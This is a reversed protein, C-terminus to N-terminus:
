GQSRTLQALAAFVASLWWKKRVMYLLALAIFFLFVPESSGVHYVTFWRPTIVIFPLVVLLPNLKPYLEKILIYLVYLFLLAFVLSVFIMARFYGMFSFLFIFLPYLPFHAAFHTAPLRLTNAKDILEPNYFSKAIVVYSPGDWNQYILQLKFPTFLWHSAYLILTSIVFIAAIILFDRLMTGTRKKM